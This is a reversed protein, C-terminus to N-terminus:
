RRLPFAAVVPTKDEIELKCVIGILPTRDQRSPLGETGHNVNPAPTDASRTVTFTWSTEGTTYRATGSFTTGKIVGQYVCNSFTITVQSGAQKWAGNVKSKADMMIAKGDPEFQFNLTGFGTLTETGSWATGAISAVVTTPPTEDSSRIREIANAVVRRVDDDPDQLLKQLAPLAAKAAPGLKALDKAAKLRVLEDPNNLNQILKQIAESPGTKAQIMRITNAAVRRVDEDPDQLIKQLAPIAEAAAAGLKGLDKAAKLRVSEDASQLDRIMRQVQEASATLQTAQIVKLSNAAVRRVDEDSDKLANQLAPIATTAAAGLKGLEKAARLRIGEDSAQLQQILQEVTAPDAKQLAVASSPTPREIEPKAPQLGLSLSSPGRTVSFTWTADGTTYGANGSLVQDKITGQYVCNGFTITVQNGKQTWKGNATSQADIMVAKTDAHFEFTLTSFGQLNENGTWRSGAISAIPGPTTPPPAAGARAVSFTWTKDNALFRANGSLTQGQITGTYVCNEFTITVQNGAHTWTGNVTSNADIMVAKGEGELRFALKGFGALTESGNWTTGVLNLPPTAVNERRLTIDRGQFRFRFEDATASANELRDTGQKHQLLVTKTNAKFVGDGSQAARNGDSVTARFVGNTGLTLRYGGSVWVGALQPKSTVPGDDTTSSPPPFQVHALPTTEPISISADIASDQAGVPLGPLARKDLCLEYVRNYTFRRLEKLTITQDRDYDAMGALGEEAARAFASYRQLAASTQSPMSSIMLIIGGRKADTYRNLIPHAAFRLQGAFCADVIVLVKKGEAALEDAMQLLVADTIDKGDHTIFGWRHLKPGGHGSLVIVYWDGAKGKKRLSSLGADIKDRTANADTLLQADVRNYMKGAQKKFVAAMGEADNVCGSLSNIPPQYRDIGVSLMFLDPRSGTPETSEVIRAIAAAAMQRVDEDPDQVLKQLMPVAERAAPGIRLLEKAALLRVSEDPNQLDQILRKVLTPDVQDIKYESRDVVQAQVPSRSDSRWSAEAIGSLGLIAFLVAARQRALTNM